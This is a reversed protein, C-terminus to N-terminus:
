KKKGRRWFLEAEDRGNEETNNRGDLKRKRKINGGCRIRGDM